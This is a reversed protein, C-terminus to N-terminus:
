KKKSNLEKSVKIKKKLFFLITGVVLIISIGVLLIWLVINSTKKIETIEIIKEDQRFKGIAYIKDNENIKELSSSFRCNIEGSEDSIIFSYGKGFDIQINKIIGKIEIIQDNYMDALAFLDGISIRGMSANLALNQSQKALNIAEDFHEKSLAKNAQKLKKEASSVKAGRAKASDIEVRALKINNQVAAIKVRISDSVELMINTSDLKGASLLVKAKNIAMSLSEIPMNDQKLKEIETIRLKIENNIGDFIIVNTELKKLSIIANYFNEKQKSVKIQNITDLFSKITINDKELEDLKMTLKNLYNDIDSSTFKPSSGTNQLNQGYKPWPSRLLAFTGKIAYLFNDSAIYLTGDIGITPSSKTIYSEETGGLTDKWKLTGDLHLAYIVNRDNIFYTIGNESLIPTSSISGGSNFKWKLNGNPDLAYLYYDKSGFYINGDKDIVASGLIQDETQYKWNLTGDSSVAYFVGDLSGINITTDPGIAPSCYIKDNTKLKWKLSGDKNIAYIYYDFSGFYITGDIAISPSCKINSGTEFKWKLNGDPNLSYIYGDTSGFYIIGEKNIAPSSLLGSSLKMRWELNGFKNIAYVLGMDTGFYITGRNSVAPSSEIASGSKFKWKLVGNIDVAYLCSDHAGIYITSDIGIAPSSTIAGGTEFKWKLSDSQSFLNTITLLIIIPYIVILKNIM